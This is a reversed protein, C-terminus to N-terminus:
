GHKEHFNGFFYGDKFALHFDKLFSHKPFELWLIKYSIQIDLHEYIKLCM